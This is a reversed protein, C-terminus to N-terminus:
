MKRDGGKGGLDEYLREFTATKAATVALKEEKSAMKYSERCTGQEEEDTSGVLKLYAVKKAEVKGQVEENWGLVERTVKRICNVTTTWMSSADGSSRWAVMALLKEELEQAKAKALAGWKIKLQDYVTRKKRVRKVELDMVLLRHGFLSWTNRGRRSVRNALVMEFAKAFDLLSTTGENRVRFGFGSHVKDYGRATVGIHGNFDGGIILKKTHPIGRVVEDLDKWFRRKVAEGLGVQPAYTNIMNFTVGGVVIKITM